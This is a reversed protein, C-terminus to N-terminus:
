PKTEGWVEPVDDLWGDETWPLSREDGALHVDLHATVVAQTVSQGLATDIWGDETCESFLPAAILCMDSFLYHGADAFTVLRAGAAMPEWTPRIETTYETVPDADGGLVLPGRVEALGEGGGGFAYWGGPAMAVTVSARPDGLGHGALVDASLGEMYGCADARPNADCYAVAADYDVAGGGVVLSTWAGFSHGIVAYQGDTVMAGLTRDGGQSRSVVEDVALRVDDPRELLVDVTADPDYDWITNNPHDPAVVVYGHSALYETLFVSQYRVGGFGHSFAVLPWPAASTDPRPDRLARNVLTTPPYTALPEPSREEAPYWVDAVMDKGRADTYYLTTVGVAFPGWGDPESWPPAAAEDAIPACSVLLLALM